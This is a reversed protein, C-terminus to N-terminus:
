KKTFTFTTEGDCIDAKDYKVAWGVKEYVPEINLSGDIFPNCNINKSLIRGLVKGQSIVSRNGDWNEAILENFSDIIEDPIRELKKDFIQEPRIPKSM